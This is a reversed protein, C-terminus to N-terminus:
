IDMGSGISALCDDNQSFFFHPVILFLNIPKYQGSIAIEPRYTPNGVHTHDRYVLKFLVFKVSKSELIFILEYKM